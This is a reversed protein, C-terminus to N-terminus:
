LWTISSKYWIGIHHDIINVEIILLNVLSRFLSKPSHLQTEKTPSKLRKLMSKKKTM